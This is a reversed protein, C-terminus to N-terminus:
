GNTLEQVTILVAKDVGARAQFKLSAPFGRVWVIEGMSVVVPWLRRKPGSLHKEQLLEKLKKPVKTHVPWFRDGPRWNRVVLEKDLLAANLLQSPNDNEASGDVPISVAKLIIGAEPVEAEGPVNLRYEYDQSFGASNTTVPLSFQLHHGQRFVRWGGPLEVQKGDKQKGDKSEASALELIQEVHKFELNLNPEVTRGWYHLVRRQIGLPHLNFAELDFCFFPSDKEPQQFLRATLTACQEDWFAEEARAIESLEDLRRTVAPNLERELLPMLVHRIRNRTHQLDENSADQRWSQRMASLFTELESHRTGLLPRVITGCIQEQKNVVLKPRIGGFGHLGTGRILRMLVTEAQDDLTHATAIRNLKGETILSEFYDYRVERAATELSVRNQKAYAPVNYVDCHFELEHQESLACVFQEDADSEAGRIQHNVHVVSLVIGLEPSLELLLHLLAVSDAGGSVAIGVRDGPNLLQRKQIYSLVAHFLKQM